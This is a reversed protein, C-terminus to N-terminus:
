KSDPPPTRVWTHTACKVQQTSMRTVNVTSTFANWLVMTDHSFARQCRSSSVVKRMTRENRRWAVWLETLHPKQQVQTKHLVTLAAVRRHYELSDLQHIPAGTTFTHVITTAKTPDGGVAAAAATYRPVVSLEGSCWTWCPSPFPFQM